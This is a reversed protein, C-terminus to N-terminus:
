IDPAMDHRNRATIKAEVDDWTLGQIIYTPKYEVNRSDQRYTKAQEPNLVLEPAGTRNEVLTRGQPLWGGKDYLATRTPVIGGTSYGGPRNMGAISGYRHISYNIGAYINAMPDLIGKSTFPGAYANFTPPITQMLGQSPIGAAANSDWNNVANPNGGSEQNMRRLVTDAWTAPQGLM